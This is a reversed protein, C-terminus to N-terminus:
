EIYRPTIANDCIYSKYKLALAQEDWIPRSAILQLAQVLAKYIQEAEPKGHAM